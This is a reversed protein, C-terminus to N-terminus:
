RSSKSSLPPSRRQDRIVLMVDDVDTNALAWNPQASALIASMSPSPTSSSATASLPTVNVSPWPSTWAWPTTNRRRRSRSPATCDYVVIAADLTPGVRLPPRRALGHPKPPASAASGSMSPSPTHSSATPAVLRSPVASGSVPATYTSSSADSPETLDNLRMSSAARPMSWWSPSRSAYSLPRAAIGSRSQSPWGSSSIPARLRSSAPVFM